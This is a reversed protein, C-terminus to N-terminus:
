ITEIRKLLKVDNNIQENLPGIYQTKLIEDLTTLNAM